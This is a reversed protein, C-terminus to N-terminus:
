GPPLPKGGFFNPSKMSPFLGGDFAEPPPVAEEAPRTIMWAGGALAARPASSPPTPRGVRISPRARLGGCRLAIRIRPPGFYLRNAQPQVAFSLRDLAGTYGLVCPGPWGPAIFVTADFDLPEGQDAVM